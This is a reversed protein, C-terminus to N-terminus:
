DRCELRAIVRRPQRWSGAAYYFERFDRQELGTAEFQAVLQERAAATLTNLRRNKALEVGQAGQFRAERVAAQRNCLTIRSCNVANKWSAGVSNTSSKSAGIIRDMPRLFAAEEEAIVVVVAEQRQVHEAALLQEHGVQARGLDVSGLM